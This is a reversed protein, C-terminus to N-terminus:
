PPTRVTADQDVNNQVFEFFRYLSGLDNEEAQPFIHLEDESAKLKFVDQKKKDIVKTSFYLSGERAFSNILVYDEEGMLSTLNDVEHYKLDNTLEVTAPESSPVSVTDSAPMMEFSSREHAELVPLTEEICMQIYRFPVELDGNAVAFVGRRIIRFKSKNPIKFTLNKARVGYNREMEQLTKFGDEGHYEITRWHDPRIQSPFESDETRDAIFRTIQVLDHEAIIDERIKEFIRPSVYLYHIGRHNELFDEITPKLDEGRRMDSYILVVGNEQEYHLYFEINEDNHEIGLKTIVGHESLVEYGRGELVSMLESRSYQTLGVIIYLDEDFDVEEETLYRHFGTLSNFEQEGVGFTGM